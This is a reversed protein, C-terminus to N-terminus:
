SIIKSPKPEITPDLKPLKVEPRAPNTEGFPWDESRLPLKM